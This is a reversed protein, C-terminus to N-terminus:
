ADEFEAYSSVNMGFFSVKPLPTQAISVNGVAPYFVAFITLNQLMDDNPYVQADEYKIHRNKCIYKTVDFGFTRTLSFDNNTTQPNNPFNTSFAQGMKFRKRWYIKYKDKNIPYLITTATMNPTVAGAGDQYLEFLETEIASANNVLRGFFVEVYGITTNDLATTPDALGSVTPQILGKIVWRKLKITNGVRQSQTVGQTLHFMQAGATNSGPAWCFYDFYNPDPAVGEQLVGVPSINTITNTFKNEVNQSIIRQVRQVLTPKNGRASAVKKARPTKVASKKYLKANRFMRGPM